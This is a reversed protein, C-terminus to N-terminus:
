DVKGVDPQLSGNWDVYDITLGPGGSHTWPYSTDMPNPSALRPFVRTLFDISDQALEALAPTSTPYYSKKKALMLKSPPYVGYKQKFAEVALELQSIEARNRAATGAARAKVVAASILGMIVGIIVVVVLMEVLTFGARKSQNTQTLKM